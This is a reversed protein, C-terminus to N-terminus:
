HAKELNQLTASSLENCCINGWFPHILDENQSFNNELVTISSPDEFGSGNWQLCLLGGLGIYDMAHPLLELRSFFRVYPNQLFILVELFSQTTNSNNHGCSDLRAVDIAIFQLQYFFMWFSTLDFLGLPSIKLSRNMEWYLTLTVLFRPAM